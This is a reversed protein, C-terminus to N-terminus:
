EVPRANGGATMCAIQDPGFSVNGQTEDDALQNENKAAMRSPRIRESKATRRVWTLLGQAAAEESLGTKDLCADSQYRSSRGRVCLAGKVSDGHDQEEDPADGVEKHRAVETLACRM